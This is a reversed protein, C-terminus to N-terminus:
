RSRSALQWAELVSCVGLVSMYAHATNYLIMM